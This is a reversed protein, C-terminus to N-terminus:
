HVRHLRLRRGSRTVHLMPFNGMGFLSSCRSVTTQSPGGEFGGLTLNLPGQKTLAGSPLDWTLQALADIMVDREAGTIAQKQKIDIRKEVAEGTGVQM